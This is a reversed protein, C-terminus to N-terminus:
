AAYLVKAEALAARRVYWHLESTRGVDVRRGGFLPSLQQALDVLTYLTSNTDPEFDVLLDIDSDPSPENRAMSGFVAVWKVGHRRCVTALAAADFQINTHTMM